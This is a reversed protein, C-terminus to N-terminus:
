GTVKGSVFSRRKEAKLVEDLYRKSEKMAPNQGSSWVQGQLTTFNEEEIQVQWLREWTPKVPSM